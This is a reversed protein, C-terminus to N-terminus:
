FIFKKNAPATNLYPATTEFLSKQEWQANHTRTIVSAQMIPLSGTICFLRGNINLAEKLHDPVNLLAGTIAIVDFQQTINEKLLADQNTIEINKINQEAIIQQAQEALSESTEYSTVHKSLQALCATLYGSGTGIELTSESKKINLSQLLKAEITPQLMSQNDTLPIATDAYALKKYKVPVFLERHIINFVNLVTKDPVNWPKIQQEIMNYRANSTNM